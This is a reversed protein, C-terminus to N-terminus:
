WIEKGQTHGWDIDVPKYTGEYNAFLKDINKKGSVAKKIIINNDEAIIEINEDLQWQLDNLIRKPIRIGQSNGWKQIKMISIKKVKAIIVDWRIYMTYVQQQQNDFIM